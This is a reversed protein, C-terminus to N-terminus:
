KLSGNYIKDFSSPDHAHPQFYKGPIKMEGCIQLLHENMRKATSNLIILIKFTGEFTINDWAIFM